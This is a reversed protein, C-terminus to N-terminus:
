LYTKGEVIVGEGRLKYSTILSSKGSSSTLM